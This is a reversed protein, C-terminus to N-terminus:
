RKKFAASLARRVSWALVLLQVPRPVARHPGPEFARGTRARGGRPDSEGLARQDRADPRVDGPKRPVQRPLKALVRGPHLQSYKAVRFQTKATTGPKEAANAPRHAIGMRDNRPLQLGSHLNRGG